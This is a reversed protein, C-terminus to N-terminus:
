YQGHLRVGAVNVPGRAGNYAPNAIHQWDLSVAAHPGLGIRYYTEVIQEPHYDLRGDGIFAGVGGAALYDRHAQSLGNRVFAAGLTDSARVQLTAGASLSREIEAFAYTESQGDNRSARAFVAARGTLAQDLSLGLGTKSRKRRVAGVDPAAAALADRFSGMRARDRFALLRVTGPQGFWAHHHEVEAQDGFYRFIHRDLPLGNSEQPLLFRGARVAWDGGYYELAAGWTYGRADAAFDWAGHAVLAWNLFQSRADHAQSNADFLDSVALNGATLVVRRSAVSGALQNMDSAVPQLDGGLNWTQRLFLRARYFTPSTGSTKQQEGNTMGGLGHLGSMAKGQVVEPDFYLEAGAWPRIGFAATASFSYGTERWPVLSSPGTYAADFAPKAQWVYTAQVHANWAEDARACSAAATLCAALYLLSSRFM